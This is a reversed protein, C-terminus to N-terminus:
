EYAKLEDVYLRRVFIITYKKYMHEAAKRNIEDRKNKKYRSNIELKNNRYTADEHYKKLHYDRRRKREEESRVVKSKSTQYSM